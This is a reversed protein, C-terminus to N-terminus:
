KTITILVRSSFYTNYGYLSVYWIGAGPNSFVCTEDSRNELIGSCDATWKYAPQYTPPKPGAVVPASGKRVFLDATNRYAATSETTKVTMSKVGAPLTFSFTKLEYDNGSVVQDVLTTTSSGTGPDTGGSSGGTSGGSVPNGVTVNNISVQPTNNQVTVKFNNAISKNTLSSKPFNGSYNTTTITWASGTLTYRKKKFSYPVSSSFEMQLATTSVSKGNIIIEEINNFNSNTKDLEEALARIGLMEEFAEELAAQADDIKKCSSIIFLNLVLFALLSIKSLKSTM